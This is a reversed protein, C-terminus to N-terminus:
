DIVRNFIEDVWKDANKDFKEQLETKASNISQEFATWQREASERDSKANIEIRERARNIYDNYIKNKLAEIEKESNIKDQQAQEKIKKAKEDMEIIKKLMDQM